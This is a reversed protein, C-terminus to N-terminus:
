DDGCDIDSCDCPWADIASPKKRSWPYYGFQGRFFGALYWISSVVGGGIIIPAISVFLISKVGSFFSLSLWIGYAGVGV